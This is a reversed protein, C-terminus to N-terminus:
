SDVHNRWTDTFATKPMLGFRLIVTKLEHFTLVAGHAIRRIAAQSVLIDHAGITYAVRLLQAALSQMREVLEAAHTLCRLLLHACHVDLIVRVQSGIQISVRSTDFVNLLM